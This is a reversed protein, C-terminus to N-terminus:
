NLYSAAPASPSGTGGTPVARVRGEPRYRSCASTSTGSIVGTLSSSSGDSTRPAAARSVVVSGPGSARSSLSVASSVGASVTTTAATSSTGSSDILIAPIARGSGYTACRRDVCAAATPRANGYPACTSRTNATVSCRAVVGTERPSRVSTATTTSAALAGVAARLWAPSASGSDHDNAVRYLCSRKDPLL